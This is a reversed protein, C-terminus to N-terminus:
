RIRIDFRFVDRVRYEPDLLLINGGIIAYRYGRPAPGYRRTLDYPLWVIRRRLGLDLREGRRLRREMEPSLRDRDSWGRGLHRQNHLYWDRTAERDRDNFSDHHQQNWDDHQQPARHEDNNWGQGRDQAAATGGSVALLALAMTCAAILRGNM